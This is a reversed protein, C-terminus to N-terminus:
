LKPEKLKVRDFARIAFTEEPPSTGKERREKIFSKLTQPHVMEKSTHPVELETLKESVQQKREDEGASFELLLVSKIIGGFNNERLWSHAAFRREESIGCTIDPALTLKTGDELKVETLGVEQMLMPFDEQEIRKFTEQALKLADEKLEVDRAALRYVNAMDSIRKLDDSARPSAIAAKATAKKM